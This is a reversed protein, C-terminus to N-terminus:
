SCSILQRHHDAPVPPFAARTGMSSLSVVRQHNRFDRSSAMPLSFRLLSLSQRPSRWRFPLGCFSCDTPPRLPSRVGPTCRPSLWSSTCKPKEAITRFQAPAAPTGPDQQRGRSPSMVCCLHWYGLEWYGLEWYGLEWYGLEWLHWEHLLAGALPQQARAALVASRCRPGSQAFGTGARIQTAPRPRSLGNGRAWKWSPPVGGTPREPQVRPCLVSRLDFACCELQCMRASVNSSVCELQCLASVNSSVCELQCMRASVNSGSSVCELQCMRASVNASVNSSVCELQCMRASVNSSVCELQCMRASVNSSVCELQCMRASVNSSVCELQVCMRASVNSSVCELQASVNSSVCELQCMRASVNSSVCELQCMRASVNSSVCELQCMRASVNSSVCELQCMRASVNSSVCELQCM